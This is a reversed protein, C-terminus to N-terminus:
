LKQWNLYFNVQSLTYDEVYPPRNNYEQHRNGYRNSEIPYRHHNPEEYNEFRQGHDAAYGDRHGHRNGTCNKKILNFFFFM